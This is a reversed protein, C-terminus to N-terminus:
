PPAPKKLAPALENQCCVIIVLVLVVFAIRESLTHIVSCIELDSYQLYDFLTKTLSFISKLM